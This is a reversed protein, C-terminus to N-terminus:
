QCEAGVQMALPTVLGVSYSERIALRFNGAALRRGKISRLQWSLLAGRAATGAVSLWATGCVLHIRPWLYLTQTMLLMLPIRQLLAANLAILHTNPLAAALCKFPSHSSALDNYPVTCVLTAYHKFVGLPGRNQSHKDTQCFSDTNGSPQSLNRRSSSWCSSSLCCRTGPMALSPWCQRCCSCGWRGCRRWRHTCTTQSFRKCLLTGTTLSTLKQKLEPQCIDPAICLLMPWCLTCILALLVAASHLQGSLFSLM